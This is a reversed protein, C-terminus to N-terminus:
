RMVGVGVRTAPWSMGAVGVGRRMARSRTGGVVAVPILLFARGVVGCPVVVPM